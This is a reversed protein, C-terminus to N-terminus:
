EPVLESYCDECFHLRSNEDNDVVLSSRVKLGVATSTTYGTNANCRDCKIAAM